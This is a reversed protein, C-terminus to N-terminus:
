YDNHCHRDLLGEVYDYNSSPQVFGASFVIGSLSVGDKLLMDMVIHTDVQGCPSITGNEFMARLESQSLSITAVRTVDGLKVDDDTRVIPIKIVFPRSDESM